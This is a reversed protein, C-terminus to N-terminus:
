RPLFWCIGWRFTVGPSYYGPVYAYKRDLLNDIKGFFRFSIVHAALEFSVDYIPRNWDPIKAFVVMDRESWYDFSLRADIYERTEAPHVTYSLLAGTKIVPRRDSLLTRSSLTFGHWPGLAPAALFVLNPQEYPPTTDPWAHKVTVPEIGQISQCGIVIAAGGRKLSLEGGTLLYHDLLLGRPDSGLASDYPIDYPLATQTAYVRMQQGGYAAEASVLWSPTYGFTRDLRYIEYGVTATCSGSIPGLQRHLTLSVEPAQELASSVATDFPDRTIQKTRYLMAAAASDSFPVFARVAFSLEKNSADSRTSGMAEPTYRVLADSEFRGQLDLGFKGFRNNASGLDFTARYQNLRSWELMGDSVPRDLALENLCDAYKAGIHMESGRAGTWQLRMGAAYENTLPNYGANSLTTTDSTFGQYFSFVSNGQHDYHVADFHRYDSFVNVTLRESFPRTFRVDLINEKFVGNEWFFSGEPVQSAAPYPTYRCRNAPLLAISSIETTFIDDTGKMPDSATFLLNGESFIRTLPAPSGYVLFRNMRSSLGFMVPVCLPSSALAESPASIDANFLLPTSFVFASGGNITHDYLHGNMEKLRSLSDALVKRQLSDPAPAASGTTDAYSGTIAQLLLLFFSVTIRHITSSPRHNM